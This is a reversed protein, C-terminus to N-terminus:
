LNPPPTFGGFEREVLGAFAVTSRDHLYGGIIQVGIPLGGDDHGIPMTTAPLWNSTAIGAWAIQDGYPVKKGDVEFQSGAVVMGIPCSSPPRGIPTCIM